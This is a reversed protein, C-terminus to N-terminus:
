YYGALYRLIKLKIAEPHLAPLYKYGIVRTHTPHMRTRGDAVKFPDDSPQFRASNSRAIRAHPPISIKTKLRSCHM